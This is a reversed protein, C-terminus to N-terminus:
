LVRRNQARKDWVVFSFAHAHRADAPHFQRSVEQWEQRDFQPFFCDGQPSAHVETIYLRDALPLMSEYLAQGGICFLTRGLDPREALIHEAQNMAAEVSPLVADAGKVALCGKRSVVLNVRNPLPGLGDFTRRGVIVVHQQTIRKFYAFDDPLSWPLDEGQGIVRNEGMAAMLALM